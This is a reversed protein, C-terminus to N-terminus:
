LPRLMEEYFKIVEDPVSNDFDGLGLQTRRQQLDDYIEQARKQIQSKDFDTLDMPYRNLLSDSYSINGWWDGRLQAAEYYALSEMVYPKRDEASKNRVDFETELSLGIESLAGTSGHIAANLLIGNSAAINDAKKALLHMARIDGQASLTQLTALDYNQYDNKEDPGRFSYIGRSEFWGIIKERNAEDGMPSWSETAAVKKDNSIASQQVASVSKEHNVKSDSTKDVSNNQPEHKFSSFSIPVFGNYFALGLLILFVTFVALKIKKLRKELFM